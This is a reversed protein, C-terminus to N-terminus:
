LPGNLTKLEPPNTSIGLTWLPRQLVQAPFRNKEPLAGQPVRALVSVRVGRRSANAYSSAAALHLTAGRSTCFLFGGPRPGGPASRYFLRTPATAGAGSISKKLFPAGVWPDPAFSM